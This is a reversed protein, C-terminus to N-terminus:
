VITVTLVLLSLPVVSSGGVGGGAGKELSLDRLAGFADAASFSIEGMKASIAIM